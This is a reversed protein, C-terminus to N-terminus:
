DAAPPQEFREYILDAEKSLLDRVGALLREADHRIAPLGQLDGEEVRRVEVQLDAAEAELRRLQAGLQRLRPQTWPADRLIEAYLGEVREVELRHERLAEVVRALEQSVLTAWERERGPQPRRLAALLADQAVLLGETTRGAGSLASAQAATRTSPATM